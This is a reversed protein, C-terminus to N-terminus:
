ARTQLVPITFNFETIGGVVVVLLEADTRFM